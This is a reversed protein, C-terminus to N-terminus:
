WSRCGPCSSALCVPGFCCVAPLRRSHHRHLLGGALVDAAGCAQLGRRTGHGRRTKPGCIRDGRDGWRGAHRCDAGHRVAGDHQRHFGGFGLIMFGTAFSVPISLGVLLGSRLGLAFVVVIMVLSIATLISAQLSGQVEDIFGSKDLLYNIKITARGTRRFPPWQM